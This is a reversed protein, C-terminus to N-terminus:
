EFRGGSHEVVRELRRRWCDIAARIQKMPLKHWEEILKKKLSDISRHYTANVKAELTGWVFYDLPNLDPSSAPWQEIDIFDPCNCRLWEQVVKAKHAPASDQQFTWQGDPYISPVNPKLGSELIEHRYYEKNIKVGKEVFKLPIKGEYGIAGWVMVANKNQFSSVTWLQEPIDEIALGYIRDNQANLKTETIFLKEDSFIIKKVAKQGYRKLLKKSRKVREERQKESLGHRLRKKYPILKLDDKLIRQISRRSTGEEAALKRQSRGPNRRIKARIRRIRKKTRVTRPRGSRLRDELSGTERLRRITSYVFNKLVGHPALLRVINAASTGEDLHKKILFRIAKVSMILRCLLVGCFIKQMSVSSM